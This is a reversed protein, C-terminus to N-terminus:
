VSMLAHFGLYNNHSWLIFGILVVALLARRGRVFYVMGGVVAMLAGPIVLFGHSGYVGLTPFLGVSMSLPSSLTAEVTNALVANGSRSQDPYHVHLLEASIYSGVIVGIGGVVMLTAVRLLRVQWRPVGTSREKPPAFPNSNGTM